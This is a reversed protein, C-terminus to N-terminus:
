DLPEFRLEDVEIRAGDLNAAAVGVFLVDSPRRALTLQAFQPAAGDATWVRVDTRAGQVRLEVFHESLGDPAVAVRTESARPADGNEILLLRGSSYILVQASAQVPESFAGFLGLSVGRQSDSSESRISWRARLRAFLRYDCAPATVPHFAQASLTGHGEGGQCVLRGAELWVGSGTDWAPRLFLPSGAISIWQGGLQSGDPREFDDILRQPGRQGARLWAPTRRLVLRFGVEDHPENRQGRLTTTTFSEPLYQRYSGGFVAAFDPALGFPDASHEALSGALDHLGFVSVDGTHSGVRAPEPQELADGPRYSSCRRADWEDGWVFRRADAGRAARVLEEVRPLDYYWDGPAPHTRGIHQRYENIESGSLGRVPLDPAAYADNAIVWEGSEASRDVHLLGDASRPRLAFGSASSGDNVASFAALFALWDAYTVERVQMQFGEVRQWRPPDDELLTWGPPTSVFGPVLEDSRLLEVEVRQPPVAGPDDYVARRRVLVPLRATVHGEAEITVDYVGAALGNVQLEGLGVREAAGIRLRITADPQACVIAISGSRDLLAAREAGALVALKEEIAAVATPARVDLSERLAQRLEAAHLHALVERAPGYGGVFDFARRCIRECSEFAAALETRAARLEERQREVARPDPRTRQVGRQVYLDEYKALKAAYRSQLEHSHHLATTADATVSRARRWNDLGLGASLLSAAVLAATLKPYRAVAGRARRWLSRPRAVIPGGTLFQRLDHALAGPTAYRRAAPKELAHLVITSLDAPVHAGLPTPERELIQQRLTSELAADFPRRLALLEYLTAGLAYVDARTDVSQGRVQEPAAYPLSGRFGEALTLASREHDLVLGFDVLVPRGDSGIVINGPKVDRHVLGREHAHQLAEALALGTHAVWRVYSERWLARAADDDSAASAGEHALAERVCESAQPLEARERLRRLVRDVALGDVFKMAYFPAGREFGAALIPVISPHDLRQISDIERQFRLAAQRTAFLQRLLKVAVRRGGLSLQRAEWVVGVAGAGLERVLEFDGVRQPAGGPELFDPHPLNELEHLEGRRAARAVFSDIASELADDSGTSPSDAHEPM